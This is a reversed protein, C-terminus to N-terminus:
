GDDSDDDCDDDVDDDHVDDDDDDDDHFLFLSDRMKPYSTSRRKNYLM